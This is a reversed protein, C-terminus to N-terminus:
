WLNDEVVAKCSLLCARQGDRSATVALALGDL